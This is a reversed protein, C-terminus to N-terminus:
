RRFVTVRVTTQESGSSLAGSFAVSKKGRKLPLSITRKKASLEFRRGGLRLRAPFTSAVTLEVRRATAKVRKPGRLLTFRPKAPDVTVKISETGIRGNRDRARAVLTTTGAPLQVTGTGRKLITKGKRTWEISRQSISKGREDHAVAELLWTGEATQRAEAMPQLIRVKPPVGVSKLPGVTAASEHWGDAVRVRVRAKGSSPFLHAALKLSSSGADYAIPTYTKGNAAYDVFTEIPDGDADTAKWRIEVTGGRGITAGKRPSTISVKPKNASATRSAVVSGERVFEVSTAGEPVYATLRQVDNTSEIGHSTEVAARFVEAGAADRAVAEFPSPNHTVQARAVPVHDEPAVRTVRASGDEQVIGSVRLSRGKQASRVGADKRRQAPPYYRAIRNWNYMSIWHNNDGAGGAAKEPCYSMLDWFQPVTPTPIRTYPPPQIVYLGLEPGLQGQNGNPWDEGSQDEEEYCEVRTGAHSFGLGHAIEHATEIMIRFPADGLMALPQRDAYLKEICDAIWCRTPDLFEKNYNQGGRLWYGNDINRQPVAFGFPRSDWPYIGIPFSGSSNNGSDDAWDEVTEIGEHGREEPSKDERARSAFWFSAEFGAFSLPVPLGLGGPNLVVGPDNEPGGRPQLGPGRGVQIELPHIPVTTTRWFKIPGIRLLNEVGRCRACEAVSPPLDAKPNIEAEYSWPGLDAGAAPVVFTYVQTTNMHAAANVTFEDGVPLGATPGAAAVLNHVITNGRKARLVMRPLTGAPLATRTNAYVRIVTNKGHTLLADQGGPDTYTVPDAPRARNRQLPAPSQVGQTVEAGAISVDLIPKAARTGFIALEIVPASDADPKREMVVAGGGDDTMGLRVRDILKHTNQHAPSTFDILTDPAGWELGDASRASRLAYREASGDPRMTTTEIWAAGYGAGPPAVVDGAGADAWGATSDRPGSLREAGAVAGADSVRRTAWAGRNDRTLVVASSESGAVRAGQGAGVDQWPGWSEQKYLDAEAPEGLGLQRIWLRDGVARAVLPVDGASGVADGLPDYIVTEPQPPNGRLNVKGFRLPPLAATTFEHIGYLGLVDHEEPTGPSLTIVTAANVLLADAVVREEFTQGGDGSMYAVVPDHMRICADSPACARARGANDVSIGDTTPVRRSTLVIVQGPRPTLVIASPNAPSRRTDTGEVSVGPPEFTERDVCDFGPRLVRCYVLLDRGDNRPELWAAHTTGTEDVAVGPGYGGDSLRLRGVTPAPTGGIGVDVEPPAPQASAACAM